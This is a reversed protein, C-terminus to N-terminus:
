DSKQVTEAAERSINLNRLMYRDSGWSIFFYICGIPIQKALLESSGSESTTKEYYHSGFWLIQVLSLVFATKFATVPYSTARQVFILAGIIIVLSLVEFSLTSISQKGVQFVRYAFLFTAISCIGGSKMLFDRWLENFYITKAYHKLVAQKGAQDITAKAM